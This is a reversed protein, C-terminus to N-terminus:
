QRQACSHLPEEKSLSCLPNFLQELLQGKHEGKLRAHPLEFFEHLLVLLVVIPRKEKLFFHILVEYYSDAPAILKLIGVLGAHSAIQAFLVLYDEKVLLAKLLLANIATADDLLENIAHELIVQM